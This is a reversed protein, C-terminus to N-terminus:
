AELLDEFAILNSFFHEQILSSSLEGQYILVPRVSTTKSFELTKIKKNMEDIIDLGIKKASKIECVYLTHRTEILLDVQSDKKRQTAKQFYFSASL